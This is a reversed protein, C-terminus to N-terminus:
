VLDAVDVSGAAAITDELTCYHFATTRKTMHRRCVCCVVFLERFLEETIGPESISDLQLLLGFVSESREAFPTFPAHDAKAVTIFNSDSVDVPCYSHKPDACVLFPTRQM